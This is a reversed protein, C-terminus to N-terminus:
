LIIMLNYIYVNNMINCFTENPDFYKTRYYRTELMLDFNSNEYKNFLKDLFLPIYDGNNNFEKNACLHFDGFAFCKNNSSQLISLSVPGNIINSLEFNDINQKTFSSEIM